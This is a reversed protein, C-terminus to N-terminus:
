QKEKTEAPIEGAYIYVDFTKLQKRIIMRGIEIQTSDPEDYLAKVATDLAKTILKQGPVVPKGDVTWTWENREFVDALSEAIENINDNM